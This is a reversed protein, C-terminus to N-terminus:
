LFVQSCLLLFGIYLSTYSISLTSQGGLILISRHHGTARDALLLDAHDLFVLLGLDMHVALVRPLLKLLAERAECTTLHHLQLLTKM